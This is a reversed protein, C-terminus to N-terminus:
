AIGNLTMLSTPNKSLPNIDIEFPSYDWFSEKFLGLGDYYVVHPVFIGGVFVEVSSSASKRETRPPTRVQYVPGDYAAVGRDFYVKILSSPRGGACMIESPIDVVLKTQKSGDRAALSLRWLDDQCAMGINITWGNLHTTSSWSSDFSRYMLNLRSPFDLLHSRLFSSLVYSRNLSHRIPMSAGINVCGCASISGSFVEMENVLSSDDFEYGLGVASATVSANAVLADPIDEQARFRGGSFDKAVRAVDEVVPHTHPVVLNAFSVLSAPSPEPCYDMCEPIHCFEVENLINCQDEPIQDRFVPRAYRRISSVRSGVPANTAPNSFSECLEALNRAAITTVFTMRPCGDYGVGFTECTVPGCEGEIRYWYFTSEGTNWSTTLDVELSGLVRWSTVFDYAAFASVEAEEASLVSISGSAQHYLDPILTISAPIITTGDLSFLPSNENPM